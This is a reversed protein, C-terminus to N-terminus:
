SNVIQLLYVVLEHIRDQYDTVTDDIQKKLTDLQEDDLINKSSEILDYLKYIESSYSKLLMHAEKKTMTLM